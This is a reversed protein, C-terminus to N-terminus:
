RTFPSAKRRRKAIEQMRARLGQPDTARVVVTVELREAPDAPRLVRSNPLPHRESGKLPSKGM